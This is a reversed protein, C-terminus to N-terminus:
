RVPLMAANAFNDASQAWLPEISILTFCTFLAIIALKHFAREPLIIM